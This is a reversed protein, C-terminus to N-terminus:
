GARDDSSLAGILWDVLRKEDGEVRASWQRLVAAVEDRRSDHPHEALIAAATQLPPLPGRQSLSETIAVEPDSMLELWELGHSRMLDVVEAADAHAGLEDSPHWWHDRGLAVSGLRTAIGTDEASRVRQDSKWHGAGAWARRLAGPVVNLNVTFSPERGTVGSNMRQLHVLHLTGDDLERELNPTRGKFGLKRLENAVERVAQAVAEPTGVGPVGSEASAIAALIPGSSIGDAAFFKVLRSAHSPLFRSGALVSTQLLLLYRSRLEETWGGSRDAPSLRASLLALVDAWSQARSDHDATM